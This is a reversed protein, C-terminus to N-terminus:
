GENEKVVAAHLGVALMNARVRVVIAVKGSDCVLRQTEELVKEAIVIGRTMTKTM